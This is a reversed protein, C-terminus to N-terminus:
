SDTAEKPRQRGDRWANLIKRAFMKLRNQGYLFNFSGRFLWNPFKPSVRWYWRLHRPLLKICVPSVTPNAARFNKGSKFRAYAYDMPSPVIEASLPLSTLFEPCRSSVYNRWASWIEKEYFAIDRLKNETFRSVGAINADHVRYESLPRHIPVIPTILPAVVQVWTDSYAKLTPPFPFVAEAVSRRLSLGSTPPLGPLVQPAKSNLFKGQWGSPLDYLFPIEGVHRRGKDVVVMKHVAFGSGPAAAFAHVVRRVKDAMFADDADLLCIIEGASEGFAANLASSQGGNGQYIIRIRSDRSAYRELIERSSDSSGDDCIILEFNPYAQDLVSDIADSLYRGYNYNSMLISVLPQDPSPELPIPKLADLEKACASIEATRNM